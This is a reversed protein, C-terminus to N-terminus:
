SGGGNAHDSIVIAGCCKAFLESAPTALQEVFPLYYATSVISVHGMYTSLLPLKAQVDEGERYWRLLAQVAFTHRFDHVRPLRGAATHIGVDQLLGSVAHGFGVGTYGKGGNTYHNWLLPADAHLPLRRTRRVELYTELESAGDHSLPLLRSKHFKSERILLTHESPDYDGISLRLLEGRRMGTTYLLVLALRFNERHLPSRNGPQLRGAVVLLRSIEAETFIHPRVPQHLPPFQSPDPVFCSPETRRRYLCLNRVVRMWKRRVGSTLHKYTLCWAAFNEADLDARTAALFADLHRLIAGEVAYKRGLAEKLAVFRAISQSIESAFSSAHSM